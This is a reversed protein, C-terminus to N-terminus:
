PHEGQGPTVDALFRALVTAFEEPQEDHPMAGANTIVAVRAHPNMALLPASAEYPNIRDYRGWVLLLPRQLRAYAVAADAWTEGRLFAAPASLAHPQRAARWAQNVMEHTVLWPDHYVMTQLYHTISARSTIVNFMAQGWVPCRAITGLARAPAPATSRGPILGTPSVAVVHSFPEPDEYAAVLAQSATVSPAVLICPSGVADRAFDLIFRSYTSAFYERDRRESRGYGPLDPAFVRYQQRLVSFARGAEYSSAAANHSHLLLLPYGEGAVTYEVRGGDWDYTNHEGDLAPIQRPRHRAVLRNAAAAATTVAAIGGALWGLWRVNNRAM